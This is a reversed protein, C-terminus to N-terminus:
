LINTFAHANLTCWVICTRLQRDFEGIIIIPKNRNIPRCFAVVCRIFCFSPQRRSTEDHLHDLFESVVDVFSFSASGCLTCDFGRATPDPASERSGDTLDPRTTPNATPEARLEAGLSM